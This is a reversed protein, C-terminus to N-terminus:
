MRTTQTTYVWRSQSTSIDGSRSGSGPYCTSDGQASEGVHKLMSAMAMDM